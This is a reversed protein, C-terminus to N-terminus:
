SGYKALLEFSIYSPRLVLTTDPCLQKILANYTKNLATRFDRDRIINGQSAITKLTTVDM